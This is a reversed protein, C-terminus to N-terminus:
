QKGPEYDTPLMGAVGGADGFYGEFILSSPNLLIGSQDFLAYDEKLNIVSYPIANAGTGYYASKFENIGNAFVVYLYNKFKLVFVGSVDTNFIIQDHRLTDLLLFQVEKPLQSKKTWYELSDYDNKTMAATPKRFRDMKADLIEDALRQDNKKRILTHLIFGNETLKNDAAARFFHMTSGLYAKLRNKTWRNRRAKSGHLSKFLAQGDYYTLYSWDPNKTFIFQNLLFEVQYGLADNKVIIFDDATVRLTETKKDFDFSLVDPNIIKCSSANQTKGIFGRKFIELYHLRLKEPLIIVPKLTTLKRKLQILVTESSNNLNISELIMDYEIMSIVLEYRGPRLNNLEFKGEASTVTGITTNNIFVSAKELPKGSESDIVRGRLDLQAHLASPTMFLLTFLLIFIRM